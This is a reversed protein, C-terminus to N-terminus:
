PTLARDFVWSFRSFNSPAGYFRFDQLQHAAFGLEDEWFDLPREINLERSIGQGPWYFIPSYLEHARPQVCLYLARRQRTRMGGTWNRTAHGSSYSLLFLLGPDLSVPQSPLLGLLGHHLIYHPADLAMSRHTFRRSPSCLLPVM